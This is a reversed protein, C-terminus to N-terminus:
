ELKIRAYYMTTGSSGLADLTFSPSNGGRVTNTFFPNLPTKLPVTIPASFTRDLLVEIIRNEKIPNDDEDTGGVYYFIFL